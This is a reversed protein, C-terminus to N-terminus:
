LPIIHDQKDLSQSTDRVITGQPNLLVTALLANLSWKVKLRDL